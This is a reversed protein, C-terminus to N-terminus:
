AIDDKDDLMDILEDLGHPANRSIWFSLAAGSIGLHKAIRVYKIGANRMDRITKARALAKDDSLARSVGHSPLSSFEEMLDPARAKMWSRLAHPTIGLERAAKGIPLPPSRNLMERLQPRRTVILTDSDPMRGKGRSIKVALDPRHKVAWTALTSAHCGARIAIRRYGPKEGTEDFRDAAEKLLRIREQREKGTLPGNTRLKM